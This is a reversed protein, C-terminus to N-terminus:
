RSPGRDRPGQVAIGDGGSGADGGRRRMRAGQTRRKGDNGREGRKTGTQGRLGEAM